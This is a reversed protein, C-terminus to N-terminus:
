DDDAEDAEDADVAEVTEHVPPEAPAVAEASARGTAAPRGPTSSPTCAALGLALVLPSVPLRLRLRALMWALIGGGRRPRAIVATDAGARDISRAAAADSRREGRRSSWSRR